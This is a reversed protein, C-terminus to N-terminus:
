KIEIVKWGMIKGFTKLSELHRGYVIAAHHTGGVESYKKLFDNIPILPKMWGRVGNGIEKYMDKLMVVPSLVLSFSDHAQPALNVLIAEGSKFCASPFISSEADSYVWEKEVLIAKDEIVEFNIEGMHSLFITDNEWDPCFMEAFSCEGLVKTMAGTLAATLVDGEGAYGVRKDKMLKCIEFFPMMPIGSDKAVVRFNITFASLNEEKLWSKLAIGIRASLKHKNENLSSIDYNLADNKIVDLIEPTDESPLYKAMENPATKFIKIGYKSYLTNPDIKFDGMGKFSEGIQGIRSNKFENAMKAGKIHQVTREIVNSLEIHGAEIFFDKNRQLLLNCMDQVGHIGHNYMLLSISDFRKDRTTDLVIIPLKTKSLAEICELSPSYALHLTVLCDVEAKEFQSVAREFEQSIRCIDALVVEIKHSELLKCIKEIFPSFENRVKPKTEDYLELYLPLLGIKLSKRNETNM